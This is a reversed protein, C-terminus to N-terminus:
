KIIKVIGKPQDDRRSMRFAAPFELEHGHKDTIGCGQGPWYPYM